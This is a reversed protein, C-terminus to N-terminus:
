RLVANAIEYTRQSAYGQVMFYHLGQLDSVDLTVGTGHASTSRVFSEGDAPVAAGDAFGVANANQLSDNKYFDCTLESYDTLDVPGTLYWRYGNGGTTFKVGTGAANVEVSGTSTNHTNRWNAVAAIPLVLEYNLALSLGVGDDAAVVTGSKTTTSGGTRDAATVTYTGPAGLSITASTGGAPVTGTYRDGHLNVATIDSGGSTATVTVTLAASFGSGSPIAAIDAAFSDFGHGSAAAVGTTVLASRIAARDDTLATIQTALSM